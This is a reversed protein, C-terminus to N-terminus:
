TPCQASHSANTSMTYSRNPRTSTKTLLAPMDGSYELRSATVSSSNSLVTPTFRFPGNRSPDRTPLRIYSAPDPEIMLTLVIPENSALTLSSGYAAAFAPRFANVTPSASASAGFTRTFQM